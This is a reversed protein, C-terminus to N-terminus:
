GAYLGESTRLKEQSKRRDYEKKQLLVSSRNKWYYKRSYVLQRPRDNARNRRYRVIASSLSCIKCRREKRGTRGLTIILNVGAFQHGNKCHTKRLNLAGVGEGRLLNELNTVPELHDPRVCKRNRCLHDLILGNRVKGIIQEFAFRHASYRKRFFLFSGYGRNLAGTWNWCNPTKQVRSWFRAIKAKAVGSM